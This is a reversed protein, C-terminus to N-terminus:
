DKYQNEGDVLVLSEMFDTTYRLWRPSRIGLSNENLSDPDFSVLGSDKEILLEGNDTCGYFRWFNWRYMRRTWSEVVGYERMVWIHCIDSEEDLGKGFVVLALSGKFVV